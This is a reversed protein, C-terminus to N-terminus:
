KTLILKDQRTRRLRYTEGSHSIRVEGRAGLLAVSDISKPSAPAQASRSTDNPPALYAPIDTKMMAAPRKRYPILIM